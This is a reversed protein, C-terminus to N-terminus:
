WHIVFNRMKDLGYRFTGQEPDLLKQSFRLLNREDIEYLIRVLADDYVDVLDFAADYMVIQPSSIHAIHGDMHLSPINKHGAFSAKVQVQTRLFACVPEANDIAHDDVNHLYSHPCLCYHSVLITPNSPHSKLDKRLWAFQGEDLHAQIVDLMVLHVGNHNFSYYGKGLNFTSRFKEPQLEHNGCVVYCPIPAKDVIKKAMAIEEDKGEETIDGPIIVFEAGLEAMRNIYKETLMVSDTFLRAVTKGDTLCTHPDALYGFRLLHKSAPKELTTFRIETFQAPGDKATLTYQLGPKLGEMTIAHLYEGEYPLPNESVVEQRFDNDDELVFVLPFAQDSNCTARIFDPGITPVRLERLM